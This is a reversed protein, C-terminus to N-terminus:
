AGDDCRGEFATDKLAVNDLMAEALLKKVKASPRSSGRRIISTEQEGLGRIVQEVTFRNPRM